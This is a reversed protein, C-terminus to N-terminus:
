SSVTSMEAAIRRRAAVTAKAAGRINAARPSSIESFVPTM